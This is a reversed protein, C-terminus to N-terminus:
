SGATAKIRKLFGSVKTLAEAILQAKSHTSAVEV